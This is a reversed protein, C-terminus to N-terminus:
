VVKIVLNLYDTTRIVEGDITNSYFQIPRRRFKFTDKKGEKVGIILFNNAHKYMSEIIHEVKDDNTIHHLVGM